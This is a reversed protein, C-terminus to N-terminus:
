LFLYPMARSERTEGRARAFPTLILAFSRDGTSRRASAKLLSFRTFLTRPLGTDLFRRTEGIGNQHGGGSSIMSSGILGASASDSVSRRRTLSHYSLVSYLRRSSLSAPAMMTTM